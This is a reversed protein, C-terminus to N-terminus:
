VIEGIKDLVKTPKWNLKEQAKSDDFTLTSTIKDLKDSNIPAKSGLLDGVKAIAKAALLPIKILKSKGLAKSIANELEGFAPDYGDTLNYVGGVEILKPLITAIDAAWVISKHADAKGISLYKGSKIGNIMAGLNGPPKPGAVLPLRLISLTINNKEAWSKLYEEAQIKSKAYPTIGLLPSDEEINSGEDLGYVAVTSIFIFAQPKTELEDIANCLNITGKYNVDYFEQQEELSRPVFHAKGAAHIIVDYKYPEDLSFPDIINFKKEFCSQIDILLFDNTNISTKLITGLFGSGGTVLIKSIM